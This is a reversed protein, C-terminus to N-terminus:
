TIQRLISANRVSESSDNSNSPTVSNIQRSPAFFGSRRNLNTASTFRKDRLELESDTNEKKIIGKEFDEIMYNKKPLTTRGMFNYFVVFSTFGSMVAMLGTWVTHNAVKDLVNARNEKKTKEEDSDSDKVNAVFQPKADIFFQWIIVAVTMLLILFSVVGAMKVLGNTYIVVQDERAWRIIRNKLNNPNCPMFSDKFWEWSSLGAFQTNYVPTRKYFDPYNNRTSNISHIDKGIYSYPLVTVNEEGEVLLEKKYRENLDVQLNKPIHKVEDNTMAFKRPRYSYLDAMAIEPYIKPERDSSM